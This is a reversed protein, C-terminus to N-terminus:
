KTRVIYVLLGLAMLILAVTLIQSGLSGEARGPAMATIRMTRTLLPPQVFVAEALDDREKFSADSFDAQSDFRASSFSVPRDFLAFLFFAERNFHASSFDCKARCHAGSFGTGMHFSAHSFNADQEFVVELFEALGKFLAGRFIAPGNFVSRHFRTHPGFHTGSFQAGQTFRAQTFYSQEEFAAGSGDVSSLFVTRSLDFSGEIHTTTFVMPGTIVLFGQKLRNVIRGRVRANKIAFPGRIVRVMEDPLGELAKWDERSLDKVAALKQVPLEDLLVDGDIVVGTLDIGKGSALLRLLDEAPIARAEREAETCSASVRVSYVTGANNGGTEVICEARIGNPVFVGGLAIASAAYLIASNAGFLRNLWDRCRSQVPPSVSICPVTFLTFM